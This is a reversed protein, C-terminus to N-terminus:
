FFLTALSGGVAAFSADAAHQTGAVVDRSDQQQLEERRVLLLILPSRRVVIDGTYASRLAYLLGALFCVATSRISRAAIQGVRVESQNGRIKVAVILGIGQRGRGDRSRQIAPLGVASALSIVPSITSSRPELPPISTSRDARRTPGVAM